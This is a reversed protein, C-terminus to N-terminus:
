TSHRRHEQLRELTPPFAALPSSSAMRDHRKQLVPILSTRRAGPLFPITPSFLLACSAAALYRRKVWDPLLYLLHTKPHIQTPNLEGRYIQANNLAVPIVSRNNWGTNSPPIFFRKTRYIDVVPIGWRFPRPCRARAQGKTPLQQTQRLGSQVTFPM